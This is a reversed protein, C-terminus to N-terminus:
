PVIQISDGIPRPGTADSTQNITQGNVVFSTSGGGDLNMADVAGLSRMLNAEETLTLGESVGPVGDATVLILRGERDVGAITRAHREASFGYDFLDRPDFVGERVADIAARGDRLLIPAASVVGTQRDLRVPVGHQDRVQEVVSVPQGAQVHASLWTADAGVAQLASDGPPLSGGAPGISVVRDQADLIAQSAPGGPLPTGFEPTFLVLDNPGTCIVGQRPESTPSFGPVGCDENSGPQRNIGLISATGGGALLRASTRLNEIRAPARGDLILDARDDNALSELRGNYVGLGTPVGAVDTLAANITFFGANVAALSGLQGAQAAVTQRSAVARGHYAIVRGSFRRPDVIAAHLLEADPGHQPDFGEWEVLPHFGDATLTAAEAIAATQTPFEGVRVRVGLVGRPDDIYRPWFLTDARPAFGDSTLASETSAAWAASGAEAFEQSGDFPSVTPAEITITWNPHVSPNTYSGSLLEVGRTPTSWTWSIHRIFGSASDPDRSGAAATATLATGAAVYVALAM